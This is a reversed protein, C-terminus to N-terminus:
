KEECNTLNTGFGFAKDFGTGCDVIFGNTTTGLAELKAEDNGAGFDLTGSLLNTSNPLGNYKMELKDNSAGLKVNAKSTITARDITTLGLNIDNMGAGGIVNYDLNVVPSRSIMEFGVKGGGAPTTPSFTVNTTDSPDDGLIKTILEQMLKPAINVNLNRAENDIVLEAKNFPSDGFNIDIMANANQSGQKFQMEGKWETAGAGLNGLVNFDIDRTFSEVQVEVKKQGAGLNLTVSPTIKTTAGAPIIYKAQVQADGVGTNVVIDFDNSQTVEFQLQSNGAGGQYTIGQVNAYSTGDALGPAGFIQVAGKAPGVVVKANVTGTFALELMGSASSIGAGRLEGKLVVPPTTQGCSVFALLAAVALGNNVNKM